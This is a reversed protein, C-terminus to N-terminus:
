RCLPIKEIRREHRGGEFETELWKNVISTVMQYSIFRAPMVIVNANNHAKALRAIETGWCLAARVKQHKNLTIAM